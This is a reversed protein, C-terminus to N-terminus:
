SQAIRKKFRYISLGSIGKHDLSNKTKVREQTYGLQRYLAIAAPQLESTGLVIEKYGINSCETEVIKVLRKALGKRRYEPSVILRRMEATQLSVAEFGISGHIHHESEFVFFANRIPALYYKTLNQLEYEIARKIYPRFDKGPHAVSIESMFSEFLGIIEPIDKNEAYRITM